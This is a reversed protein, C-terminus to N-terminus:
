WRLMGCRWVSGRGGGGVCLCGAWVVCMRVCVCVCRQGKGPHSARGRGVCWMCAWVCARACVCVCVRVGRGAVGVGCVGGGWRAVCVCVEGGRGGWGWVCKTTRQRATDRPRQRQGRGGLGADVPGRWVCVGMGGVGCVCGAWVCAPGKVGAVCWGGGGGGGRGGLVCVANDKAQSHREAETEAGAGVPPRWVCVGMGGM